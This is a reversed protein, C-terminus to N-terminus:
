ENNFKEELFHLLSNQSLNFIFFDNINKIIFQKEEIFKIKDHNNNFKIKYYYFNFLLLLLERYIIDKEKKYLSLIIKFNAMINENLNIKQEDIIHNFKIFNGPTIQMNQDEILIKQKFYNILSLTIEKKNINNLIFKIELCRSKVTSLIPKTKNNIFIFYNNKGPEEIIKLIANLCNNNFCEVEDFIIFRKDNIIPKKLLNKKLKRIDEINIKKLNFSEFYIINPFLNNIFQSHFISKDNFYNDKENYNKKDFYFHLLHNVFTEKGIGRDGTIMLSQPLKDKQILNKFFIFKKKYGYLYPNARPCMINLNTM